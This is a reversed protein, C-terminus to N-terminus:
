DHKMEQETGAAKMLTITFLAGGQENNEAHLTGQYNKIIDASIALGLGLGKTTKTTFFPEFLRELVTDSLGGGNDSIQIHVSQEDSFWRALIQPHDLDELADIANSLLNVIVQELRLQNCSCFLPKSPEDRILKINRKELQHSLLLVSNEICKTVSVVQGKGDSPRSFSRLESTLLGIREVLQVMRNLNFNVSDYDAKELFRIANASYTSLAALPQNIEHALGASLQGIVALKENRILEKQLTKMRQESLVRERIENQLASNKLKLDSSREEVLRELNDYAHMLEDQAQLKQRIFMNRQKYFLFLGGIIILIFTQFIMFLWLSSYITDMSNFQAIRMSMGPIPRSVVLYESNQIHVLDHDREATPQPLSDLPTIQMRNYIKSAQIKKLTANDLPLISRYQWGKVSSLLVVKNDDYVIIPHSIPAFLQLLNDVETKIAVVGIRQHHEEIGTALYYGPVNNTTGVSYFGDVKQSSAQKFYDRYGIDNGLISNKQNVDNSAIIRGQQNAIFVKLLGTGQNLRRFKANIHNQLDQNDPHLLYQKVDSDMAISMPLFSFRTINLEIREIYANIDQTMTTQMSDIMSKLTYYYYGIDVCVIMLLIISVYMFLKRKHQTSHESSMLATAASM